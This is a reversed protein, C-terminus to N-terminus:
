KAVKARRYQVYADRVASYPEIASRKMDDYLDLIDDLQNFTRGAALGWSLEWPEVYTLPDLFYDGVRGASDRATSAGLLPWVIYFGEGMGWVGFTQGLDEDDVPVVPKHYKAVNFFGGLGATTNLVFRSMEVGAAKGKGQLLNNVFRVPFALNHFVNKLGTRLFEPTVYAYGRYAPRAVYDLVVDNVRFVGRNWVELPDAVVPAAADLYSDDDDLSPPAALASACVLLLCAALLVAYRSFASNASPVARAPCAFAALGRWLFSREFMM